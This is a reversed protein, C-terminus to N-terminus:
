LLSVYPYSNSLLVLVRFDNVKVFEPKEQGRGYRADWIEIAGSETAVAFTDKNKFALAKVAHLKPKYFRCRHLEM